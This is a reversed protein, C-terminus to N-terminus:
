NKGHKNRVIKMSPSREFDSTRVVIQSIKMFSPLNDNVMGIQQKLYADKDGSITAMVVARPYVELTLTGNDNLYVLSDQIVELENFRCEIEAPSVNEGSPLVIIEKIRGVIYLMGDEDMRVLDGTKFYGDVFAMQNEQEEGIYCDMVNIGKIWLEGDVIKYDIGDYIYGVSEPKELSRPNGSVLNASETLGYGPLLTIGFKQYEKVLYPSVTAAGCIITKVDNGLMNRGFQKSLNLAMEALAPVLVLITPKFMAIDRFMDKNNKCIFITSGTYLSTLLNRILGFVHTLPLILLYRLGFVDYIGYCGNKVGRMLAQNSLLAGKNKGTTGGTFIVTCPSQGPVDVANAANQGQCQETWLLVSPNNQALLQTKCQFTSHYFLAKLQFKLSCGFLANQDLHPPLLVAVCGFTTIALYAIACHVSNPMFIGVRDGQKLGHEALLGRVLAVQQDIQAFTYPKEDVIAVDQAYNQTCNQWMRTVNPYDVIKAWNEASTYQQFVSKTMTEGKITLQKSVKAITTRRKTTANSM